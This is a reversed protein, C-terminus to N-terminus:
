VCNPCVNMVKVTCKGCVASRCKLCKVFTKNQKCQAKVTCTMRRPQDAGDLPVDVYPAVKSAMWEARLEQALQLMFDRRLISNEICSRYLVCANIAALDLLNYFVAVPWRRTGGKVSYQRAMQDLVDVGVKTRNYYTVTEPKRKNDISIAVHQHQTSLITVNRRPKCQYVTLTIKDSKLVKTSFLEGRGQVSPPLERKNKNITGVMSTNKHLLKNALPISTFFNDTTINRGKGVFPEVLKLVVSEGLSQTAPRSDDKGLYPFSNLVYKTEVDAALWFKIGFKDPKNPMYQTFRCRAEAMLAFKDTSLRCRRTEKRDFRLYRMIERFRNRSMTTIFFTNGWEKSWFSEIDINKGCYAGRVYLLAIFAKLEALPMDWATDDTARRAEAVTCERINQLM